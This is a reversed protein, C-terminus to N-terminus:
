RAVGKSKRMTHDPSRCMAGTKVARDQGSFASSRAKTSCRCQGDHRPTQPHAPHKETFYLIIVREYDLVEASELKLGPLEPFLGVVNKKARTFEVSTAVYTLPTQCGIRM